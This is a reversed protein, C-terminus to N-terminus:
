YFTLIGGGDRERAHVLGWDVLRRLRKSANQRKNSEQGTELKKSRKKKLLIYLCECVQVCFFFGRKAVAEIARMRMCGCM